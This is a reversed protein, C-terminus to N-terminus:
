PGLARASVTGDASPGLARGVTAALWEAERKDRIGGGAKVKRGSKLVITVDYYPSNGSQMGIATTVEAIEGTEIRKGAGAALYGSAVTVGGSEVTVRTVGLWIDLVIVLLLVGFAGFVIPFLLPAGFHITAWIAACWILFFVTLGSAFGPNRAPPYFIETGRRNTTVEIRSTPPQRYAAPAAPDHTATEESATRPQESEATRFVPVEFVSSYDIGPVDADVQLRWVIRDDPNRDDSARADAPIPFAVPITAGVAPIRRDEQWFITESTSRNRGSGSRYRRLCTLTVRFGGEPRLPEAMRVTGTLSHGVVGPATGLEFRSVGYRRFRLTSRVAWILIGVGVLPFLLAVLGARNGKEIAERVGFYGAPLSVLNWFIAFTWAFAATQRTADDAYGAAWDPRWRWPTDANAAQLAQVALLKRRGTLAAIIGGFGVGGFTLAFIAFFGAQAWDHAAAARVAGVGTFVGVAAFPLLFLAICGVSGIM